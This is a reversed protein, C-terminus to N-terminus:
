GRRMVQDWAAEWRLFEPTVTPLTDLPRAMGERRLRLNLRCAIRYVRSTQGGHWAYAAHCLAHTKEYGAPIRTM